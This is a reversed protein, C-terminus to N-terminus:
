CPKRCSCLLKEPVQISMELLAQGLAKGQADVRLSGSCGGEGALIGKLLFNLAGLNFMEFRLTETLGFSEILSLLNNNRLM